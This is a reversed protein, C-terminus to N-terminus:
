SSEKYGRYCLSSDLRTYSWVVGHDVLAIKRTATKAKAGAPTPLEVREEIKPSELTYFTNTYKIYTFVTPLLPQSPVHFFARSDDFPRVSPKKKDCFYRVYHSAVM